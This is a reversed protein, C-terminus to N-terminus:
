ITPWISDGRPVRVLRSAPAADDAAATRRTTHALGGPATAPAPAYGVIVQGPMYDAAPALRAARADAAGADAARADAARADPAPSAPGGAAVCLLAALTLM